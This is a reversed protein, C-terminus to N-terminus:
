WRSILPSGDAFTVSDGTKIGQEDFWGRPVELAFRVYRTSSVNDTSLPKMDLLDYIVGNSGIYAISLPSPTNKMWFDLYQDHDFVFLMGTGSPIKKRNMFGYNREEPKVALEAEVAARSGDSKRIVLSEVPLEYKRKEQCSVFVPCLFGSFLFAAIIKCLIKKSVNM